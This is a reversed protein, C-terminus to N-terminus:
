CRQNEFAEEYDNLSVEATTMHSWLTRMWDLLGMCTAISSTQAALSRRVVRKIKESWSPILFTKPETVNINPMRQMVGMVMLHNTPLSRIKLKCETSKASPITKNLKLTDQITADNQRRRRESLIFSLQPCCHDPTWGISGLGGHYRTM